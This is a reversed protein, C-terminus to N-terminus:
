HISLPQITFITLIHLTDPSFTDLMNNDIQTIPYDQHPQHPTCQICDGLTKKGIDHGCILSPTPSSPRIYPSWQVKINYGEFIGTNCELTLTMNQADRKFYSDTTSPPRIYPFRQVEISNWKFIITNSKFTLTMNHASCKPRCEM